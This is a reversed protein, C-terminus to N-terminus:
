TFLFVYICQLRGCFSIIFCMLSYLCVIALKDMLMPPQLKVGQDWHTFIRLRFAYNEQLTLRSEMFTGVPFNLSFSRCGFRRCCIWLYCGDFVCVILNWM